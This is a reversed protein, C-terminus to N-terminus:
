VVFACYFLIDIIDTGIKKTLKNFEPPHMDFAGDLESVTRVMQNSVCFALLAIFQAVTLVPLVIRQLYYHIHLSIIFSPMTRIQNM